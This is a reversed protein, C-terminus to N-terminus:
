GPRLCRVYNFVRNVDGEPGYYSPYYDPNGTKPDSRQAGAGHVDIWVSSFFGLARGFSVYVARSGGRANKHTTSTWFSPYDDMMGENIIMTTDFVPDISASETVDPGRSYNVIYQLEKANPIRWDNYGALELDRCYGLAAKWDMGKGSDNKQWMINTTNDTITGDGNDSFVNRGYSNGRVYRLFYGNNKGELPYCKIRGDAFNVGFFCEENIMVRSGYLNSSIWQSDIIREGSSVDGYNFVFVSDDIFPKAPETSDADVDIGSFLILSYLEKITPVRWDDYGAYGFSESENTADYYDKKEGADKIWMLGTNEDTVTGDGNDVYRPQAGSYHADQSYFKGGSPCDIEAEEDFCKQQNTDVVVTKIIGTSKNEIVAGVQEQTQETIDEGIEYEEPNVTDNEQLPEDVEGPMEVEKEPVEIGPLNDHPSDQSTCGFFLLGFVLLIAIICKM